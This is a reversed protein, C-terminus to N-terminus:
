SAVLLAPLSHFFIDDEILILIAGLGVDSADTRATFPLTYDIGHITVLEPLVNKL